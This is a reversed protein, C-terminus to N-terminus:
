VCMPFCPTANSPTYRLPKRRESKRRERGIAKLSVVRMKGGPPLESRFLLAALLSFYLSVPLHNLFPPRAPSMCAFDTKERKVGKSLRKKRTKPPCPPVAMICQQPTSAGKEGGAKPPALFNMVAVHPFPSLSQMSVLSPNPSQIIFSMTEYCIPWALSTM